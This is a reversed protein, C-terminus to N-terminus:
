CARPGLSLSRVMPISLDYNQHQQMLFVPLEFSAVVVLKDVERAEVAIVIFCDQDSVLNNFELRLSSNNLINGMGKKSEALLGQPTWTQVVLNFASATSLSDLNSIALLHFYLVGSGPRPISRKPNGFFVQVSPLSWLSRDQALVRGLEVFCKTIKSLREAKYSPLQILKDKPWAPLNPALSTM